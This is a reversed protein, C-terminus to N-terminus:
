NNKKAELEVYNKGGSIDGQYERTYSTIIESTMRFLATYVFVLIFLQQSVKDQEAPDHQNIYRQLTSNMLLSGAFSLMQCIVDIPAAVVKQTFVRGIFTNNV